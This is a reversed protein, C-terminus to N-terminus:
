RILPHKRMAIYLRDESLAVHYSRENFLRDAIAPVSDNDGHGDGGFNKVADYPVFSMEHVVRVPLNVGNRKMDNWLDEDTDAIVRTVMWWGVFYPPYYVDPPGLGPITRALILRM